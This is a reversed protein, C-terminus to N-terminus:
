FQVILEPTRFCDICVDGYVTCGLDVIEMGVTDRATGHSIDTLAARGRRCIRMSARQRRWVVVM